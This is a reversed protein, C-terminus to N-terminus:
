YWQWRIVGATPSLREWVDGPARGVIVPCRFRWYMPCRRASAATARGNAESPSSVVLPVSLIAPLPKQSTRAPFRNSLVTNMTLVGQNTNEVRAADIATASLTNGADVAGASRSRVAWQHAWSGFAKMVAPSLQSGPMIAILPEARPRSAPPAPPACQPRLAACNPAVHSHQLSRNMTSRPPPPVDHKYRFFDHEEVSIKTISNKGSVRSHAVTRSAVRWWEPTRWRERRCEVRSM